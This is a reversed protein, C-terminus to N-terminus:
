LNLHAAKKWTGSNHIDNWCHSRLNGTAPLIACDVHSKADWYYWCYIVDGAKTFISGDNRDARLVRIQIKVGLGAVGPMSFEAFSEDNYRRGNEADYYSQLSVKHLAVGAFSAEASITGADNCVQVDVGEINIGICAM